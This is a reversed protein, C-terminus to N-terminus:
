ARITSAVGNAMVYGTLRTFSRGNSREGHAAWRRGGVADSGDRLYIWVVYDIPPTEYGLRGLFHAIDAQHEISHALVQFLGDAVTFDQEFWPVNFAREMGTEDLEAAFPV